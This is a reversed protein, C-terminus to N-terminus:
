SLTLVQSQQCWLIVRDLLIISKSWHFLFTYFTNLVLPYSMQLYVSPQSHPWCFFFTFPSTSSAPISGAVKHMSLVREVLQALGGKYQNRQVDGYFKVIIFPWERSLVVKGHQKRCLDCLWDGLWIWWWMRNQNKDINKCRPRNKRGEAWQAVPM